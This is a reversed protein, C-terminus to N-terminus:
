FYLEMMGIQMENRANRKKAIKVQKWEWHMNNQKCKRRTKSQERSVWGDIIDILDKWLPAKLDNFNDYINKANKMLGKYQKSKQM